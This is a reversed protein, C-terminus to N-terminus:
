KDSAPPAILQGSAFNPVVATAFSITTLLSFRGMRAEQLIPGERDDPDRAKVFWNIGAHNTLVPVCIFQEQAAVFTWRPPHIANCGGTLLGAIWKPSM